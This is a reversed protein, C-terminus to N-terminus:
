NLKDVAEAIREVAASIDADSATYSFRVHRPDGFGEGSVTVVRAEALLYETM